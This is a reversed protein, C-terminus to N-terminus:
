YGTLSVKKTQVLFELGDDVCGTKKQTHTDTDTDTDTHRHKQRIM